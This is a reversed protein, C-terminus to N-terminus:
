DQTTLSTGDEEEHQKSPVVVEEMLEDSIIQLMGVFQALEDPTFRERVRGMVKAVYNNSINYYDHYKQTPVLHYERKDVQSQVKDLYGKRVLHNVKYAANPASINLFTAFENVNPEDLALITEMCFTEVTTLTAERDEFKTLVKQYFQLKFKMYIESFVQELM